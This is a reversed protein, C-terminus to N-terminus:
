FCTSCFLTTHARSCGNGRLAWPNRLARTGPLARRYHVATTPCVWDRAKTPGRLVSTKRLTRTGFSTLTTQTFRPLFFLWLSVDIVVVVSSLWSSRCNNRYTWRYYSRNSSCVFNLFFIKFFFCCVKVFNDPIRRRRTLLLIYPLGYTVEKYSATMFINYM